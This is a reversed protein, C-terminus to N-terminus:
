LGPRSAAQLKRYARYTMLPLAWFSIVLSGIALAAGIGSIGHDDLLLMGMGVIALSELALVIATPWVWGIGILVSQHLQTWMWLIFYLGMTVQLALPIGLEKGLWLDIIINGALAIAGGAALSYAVVLAAARVYSQRVWRKDGRTVADVIAPWLPQTVMAVMGAAMVLLRVLVGFQAVEEPGRMWGVLVVLFNIKIIGALQILFFGSGSTLLTRAVNRDVHAFRPRLYSRDRVLLFGGNFLSALAMPASVALVIAVITPFLRAALLIAAISLASGAVYWLIAIYQTQYGTRTADFTSGVIQFAMIAALTSAAAVIEAANPAYQAGFLTAVPVTQFVFVVTAGLALAVALLIFFATSFYRCELNRDHKAAAAAIGRTLWMPFGLRGLAIWGLAATIMLYIGFGTTGLAHFAVPIAILQVGVTVIKSGLSSAVSRTIGKRRIDRAEKESLPINEAM